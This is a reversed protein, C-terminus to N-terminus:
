RKLFHESFYTAIGSLLAVALAKLAWDARKIKGEVRDIRVILGKSPDGNGTLIERVFKLDESMRELLANDHSM